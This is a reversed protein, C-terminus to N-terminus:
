GRAKGMWSKSKNGDIVGMKNLLRAQIAEEKSDFEGVDLVEYKGSYSNFVIDHFKTPMFHTFKRGFRSQTLNSIRNDDSIKNIHHIRHKPFFGYVYYWALRAASWNFGKLRIYRIGQQTWGARDGKKAGYVYRRWRFIGTDPDYHLYEKLAKPTMTFDEKPKKPCELSLYKMKCTTSDGNTRYVRKPYTGFMYLFALRSGSYRKKKYTIFLLGKNIHGAIDGKKVNGRNVKWRFNGTEPNYTLLRHLTTKDMKRRKQIVQGRHWLRIIM